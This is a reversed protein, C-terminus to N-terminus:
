STISVSPTEFEAILLEPALVLPIRKRRRLQPAPLYQMSDTWFLYIIAVTHECAAWQSGGKMTLPAYLTRMLLRMESYLM